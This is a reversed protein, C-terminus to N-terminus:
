CDCSGGMPHGCAKIKAIVEEKKQAQEKKFDPDKARAANKPNPVAKYLGDIFGSDDIRRVHHMDWLEMPNIETAAPDFRKAAEYVNNIAAMTPYLKASL